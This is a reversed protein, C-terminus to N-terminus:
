VGEGIRAEVVGILLDGLNHRCREAEGGGGEIVAVALKNVELLPGVCAVRLEGGVDAAVREARLASMVSRRGAWRIAAATMQRQPRQATGAPCAWSSLPM